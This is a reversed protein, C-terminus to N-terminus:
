ERTIKYLIALAVCEVINLSAPWFGEDGGDRDHGMDGFLLFFAILAIFLISKLLFTGAFFMLNISFKSKTEKYSKWYINLLGLLLGLNVFEVALVAIVMWPEPEM